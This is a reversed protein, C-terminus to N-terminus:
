GNEPEWYRVRGDTAGTRSTVSNGSVVEYWNGWTGDPDDVSPSTPDFLTSDYSWIISQVYTHAGKWESVISLVTDAVDRPAMHGTGITSEGWVPILATLQTGTIPWRTPYVIIWIDSWFGHREPNSVSDWDWAAANTTVAGDPHRSVWFEQRDVVRVLPLAGMYKGLYEQLEQVLGEASGADVWRAIWQQTRVAYDANSEGIGQHIGVTASIYPLATAPDVYQNLQAPQYMAYRARVGEVAQEILVDCYNAITYIVKFSTQLGPRNALWRPTWSQVAHRLLRIV